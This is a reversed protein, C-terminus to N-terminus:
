QKLKYILYIIFSFLISFLLMNLNRTNKFHDATIISKEDDPDIRKNGDIKLFQESKPVEIM